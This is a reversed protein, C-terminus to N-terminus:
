RVYNRAMTSSQLLALEFDCRWVQVFYVLAIAVLEPSPELGLRSFLRDSHRGLWRKPRRGGAAAAAAAAEAGVLPAAEIDM